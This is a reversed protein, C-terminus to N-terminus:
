RKEKFIKGLWQSTKLLITEMLVPCLLVGLYTEALVSITTTISKLKSM